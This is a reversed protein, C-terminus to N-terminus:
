PDLSQLNWPALPRNLSNADERSQADLSGLMRQFCPKQYPSWGTCQKSEFALKEPAEESAQIWRAAPVGTSARTTIKWHDKLAIGISRRREESPRGDSGTLARGISKRDEEPLRGISAELIGADVRKRHEDRVRRISGGGIERCNSNRQLKTGGVINKCHEESVCTSTRHMSKGDTESVRGIEGVAKGM